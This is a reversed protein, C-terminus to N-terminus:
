RSKSPLSRTSEPPPGLIAGVSPYVQICKSVSRGLVRVIHEGHGLAQESAKRVAV